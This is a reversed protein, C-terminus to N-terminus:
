DECNQLKIKVQTWYKTWLTLVPEIPEIKPKIKTRIRLGALRKKVMWKNAQFETIPKLNELEYWLIWYLRFGNFDKWLLGM